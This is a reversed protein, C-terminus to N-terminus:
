INKLNQFLETFKSNKRYFVPPNGIPAEVEIWGKKYEKDNWVHVWNDEPLYIKWTKQRM